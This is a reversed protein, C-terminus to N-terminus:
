GFGHRDCLSSDLQADPSPNGSNSAKLIVRIKLEEILTLDSKQDNVNEELKRLM